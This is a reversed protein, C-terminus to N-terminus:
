LEAINLAFERRPMRNAPYPKRGAPKPNPTYNNPAEVVSLGKAIRDNYTRVRHCNACVLDCKAIEALIREKSCMQAVLHSVVAAKTGRRHDFDMCAYHYTQGCDACPKSKQEVFWARKEDRRRAAEDKRSIGRKGYREREYAQGEPTLRFEKRALYQARSKARDEETRPGLSQYYLRAKEKRRRHAEEPPLKNWVM